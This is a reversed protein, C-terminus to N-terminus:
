RVVHGLVRQDDPEAYAVLLPGNSGEPSSTTAHALSSRGGKWASPPQVARGFLLAALILGLQNPRVLGLLAHVPSAAFAYGAARWGSKRDGAAIHELASEVFSWYFEGNHRLITRLCAYLGPRRSGARRLNTHMVHRMVGLRRWQLPDYTGATRQRFLVCPQAVFGVRHQMAIRLHWDWDEDGDAADSEDLLGVTERVSSRTVTSGIQPFEYLFSQLVDGHDPLTQPFPAYTPQRDENTTVTQGVAATLEPRADLLAVLPAIHNPLWVDDDDLFALFEGTAASIGANRAAAAGARAVPVYRAGFEHAPAAGEGDGNDCVLIELTLSPTEVARISALAERLLEPRGRTPVIVSVRAPTAAQM